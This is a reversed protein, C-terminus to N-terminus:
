YSRVGHLVAIGYWARTNSPIGWVKLDIHVTGENGYFSSKGVGTTPCLASLPREV